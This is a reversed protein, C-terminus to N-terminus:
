ELTAVGKAALRYAMERELGKLSLLDEAPEIAEQPQENAEQAQVQLADKARYRLEEILEENLGDIDRLENVPVYAVEELTSFGNAVLMEAVDEEIGLYRMFNKRSAQSEGAHKKQLDAVTMVNLDWGTLQSALRVNQGSRGIAQALNDAEVALDVAHADEDVNVSAVDAPAMANVVFQIPNDEWVVIDIREGGLEKSVAHVRAGRVGALAGVPDTREDNTKVAIGM